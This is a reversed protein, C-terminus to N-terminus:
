KRFNWITTRFNLLKKFIPAMEIAGYKRLFLVTNGKKPIKKQLILGACFM